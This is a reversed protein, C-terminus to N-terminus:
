VVVGQIKSLIEDRFTADMKIYEMLQKNLELVNALCNKKVINYVMKRVEKLKSAKLEDRVRRRMSGLPGEDLEQIWDEHSAKLRSDVDFCELFEYYIQLAEKIRQKDRGYTSPQSYQKLLYEEYCDLYAEQMKELLEQIGHDFVFPDGWEDEYIFLKDTVKDYMLNMEHIEKASTCKDLVTLLGNMDFTDFEGNFMRDEKEYSDRQEEYRSEIMPLYGSLPQSTRELCLSVKEFHDMKTNIYNNIQQINNIQQYIVQQPTQTKPVKYIKNDLIHQKIEDTLEIVNDTARCSKLKKYLHNRMHGRHHTAYGCRPCKYDDKPAM